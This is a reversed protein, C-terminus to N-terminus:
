GTVDFINRDRFILLPLFKAQLNDLGKVKNSLFHTAVLGNQVARFGVFPKIDLTSELSCPQFHRM